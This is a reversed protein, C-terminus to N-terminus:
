RAARVGAQRRRSAYGLALLGLMFLPVTGPLPVGSPPTAQNAVVGSFKFADTYNALSGAVVLYRGLPNPNTNDLRTGTPGIDPTLSLQTFTQGAIAPVGGSFAVSNFNISSTGGVWADVNVNGGSTGCTGTSTMACTWGLSFSTVDWNNSGFDIVLIDNTGYNDIAHQPSTTDTSGQLSNSIGVGSGGYIALQANIWNGTDVPSVGSTTQLTPTSYARMTIVSGTLGSASTQCTTTSCYISSGMSTSALGISTTTGWTVAEAPAAFALGLLPILVAFAKTTKM